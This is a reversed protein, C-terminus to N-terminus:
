CAARHEIQRQTVNATREQVRWLEMQTTDVKCETTELASMLQRSIRMSSPTSSSSPTNLRALNQAADRINTETAFKRHLTGIRSSSITSWHHYFLNPHLLVPFQFLVRVKSYRLKVESSM